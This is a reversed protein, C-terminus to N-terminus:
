LTSALQHGYYLINSILNWFLLGFRNENHLDMQKTSGIQGRYCGLVVRSSNWDPFERCNLNLFFLIAETMEAWWFLTENGLFAQLRNNHWIYKILM